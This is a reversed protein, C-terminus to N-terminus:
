KRRQPAKKTTNTKKRQGATKNEPLEKAWTLLEGIDSAYDEVVSTYWKDNSNGNLKQMIYYIGSVNTAFNTYNWLVDFQTDTLSAADAKLDDNGITTLMQSLQERADKIQDSLYSKETKKKLTATLRELAKVDPINEPSRDINSYPRVVIDGQASISDPRLTNDRQNITMGATPIFIDSIQKFHLAGIRNYESEVKKYELWKANPILGGSASKIFGSSRSMFNTLDSLYTLLQRKNYKDVVNIPRRPDESTGRIDVGTNRKIRNEKATVASRKKRVVNRLNELEDKAAM